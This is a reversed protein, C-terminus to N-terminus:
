NLVLKKYSIVADIFIDDYYYTPEVNLQLQIKHIYLSATGDLAVLIDLFTHAKQHEIANSLPALSHRVATIICM